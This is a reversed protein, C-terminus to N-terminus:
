ALLKKVSATTKVVTCIESMMFSLYDVEKTLQEIRVKFIELAEAENPEFVPVYSLIAKKSM